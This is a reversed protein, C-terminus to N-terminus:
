HGAKRWQKYKAFIKEIDAKNTALIASKDFSGRVQYFSSDKDMYVPQMLIGEGRIWYGKHYNDYKITATPINMLLWIGGGIIIIIAAIICISEKM